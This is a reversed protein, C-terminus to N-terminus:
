TYAKLPVVEKTDDKIYNVFGLNIHFMMNKHLVINEFNKQYHYALSDGKKDQEWYWKQKERASKDEDNPHRMFSLLGFVFIVAAFAGLKERILKTARFCTIIFFVFLVINLIMWLLYFM